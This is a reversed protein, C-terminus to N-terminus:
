LHKNDKKVVITYRRRLVVNNRGCYEAIKAIGLMVGFMIILSASSIAGLVIWRLQDQEGTGLDFYYIVEAGWVQITGAEIIYLLLITLIAISIYLWWQNRVRIKTGDYNQHAATYGFFIQIFIMAVILLVLLIFMFNSIYM